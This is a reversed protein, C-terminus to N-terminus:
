MCEGNHYTFCSGCLTTGRPPETLVDPCTVHVVDDGAYVCEEGQVDTGCNGCAESYAARFSPM